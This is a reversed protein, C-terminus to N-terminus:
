CSAAHLAAAASNLAARLPKLTGDLQALLLGGQYSALAALALADPDAEPRLAGRTQLRRLGAAVLDAWRAFGKALAARAAPDNEALEAALAGLPCRVPDDADRNLEVLLELWADIAAWNDIEGLLPQQADIVQDIQREIVALVLDNKSSFYHYLQGKGTQSDEIIQELGTARVGQRYFLESASDLIRELTARGRDTSPATKM